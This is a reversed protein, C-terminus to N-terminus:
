RSDEDGFPNRETFDLIDDLASSTDFGAQADLDTNSAYPSQTQLVSETFDENILFAPEGTALDQELLISNLQFIVPSWAFKSNKFLPFM